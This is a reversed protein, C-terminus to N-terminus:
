GQRALEIVSDGGVPVRTGCNPCAWHDGDQMLNASQCRPCRLIESLPRALTPPSDGKKYGWVLDYDVQWGMIEVQGIGNRQLLAAMEDDSFTKGPMLRTNVRNTILLIGGPRLVRILERVVAEPSEMFELAELCTVLDFCQDAFPLREAPLWLLHVRPHNLKAAARRLMRRSLDIGVVRGQFHAHRVLALPLRATGTAADLVLPAKIPAIREMIPQALFMHDYERRFHKIKDYREAYLDYLGIVVRRGLYVGETPFLLWWGLAIVGAIILVVGILPLLDSM